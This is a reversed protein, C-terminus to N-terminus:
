EPNTSAKRRKEKRERGRPRRKGKEDEKREGKADKERWGGRPLSASKTKKKKGSFSSDRERMGQLSITQLAYKFVSVRYINWPAHQMRHGHAIKLRLLLGLLTRERKNVPVIPLRAISCHAIAIENSM